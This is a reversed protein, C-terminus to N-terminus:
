NLGLPNEDCQRSIDGITHDPSSLSSHTKLKSTVSRLSDLSIHKELVGEVLSNLRLSPVKKLNDAKSSLRSLQKPDISSAHHLSTKRSVSNDTNSLSLDDLQVGRAPLQALNNIMVSITNCREFPSKLEETM